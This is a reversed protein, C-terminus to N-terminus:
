GARFVILINTHLNLVNLLIKSTHGTLCSYFVYKTYLLYCLNESALLRIVTLCLIVIM